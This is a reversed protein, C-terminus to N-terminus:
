AAWRGSLEGARGATECTSILELWGDAISLWAEKDFVTEALNAHDLALKASKAYQEFESM